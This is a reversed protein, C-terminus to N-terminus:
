CLYENFLCGVCDNSQIVKDIFKQFSKVGKVDINYYKMFLTHQYLYLLFVVMLYKRDNKKYKSMVYKRYKMDRRKFCNFEWLFFTLDHRNKHCEIIYDTILFINFLNKGYYFKFAKYIFFLVFIRDEKYNGVNECFLNIVHMVILIKYSYKNSCLGGLTLLEPIFFVYKYLKMLEAYFFFKKQCNLLKDLEWRLKIFDINNFIKSDFEASFRECMEHNFEVNKDIKCMMNRLQIIFKRDYSPEFISIYTKHDLKYDNFIDHVDEIIKLRRLHSSNYSFSINESIYKEIYLNFTDVFNKFNESNMIPKFITRPFISNRQTDKFVKSYREILKTCEKIHNRSYDKKLGGMLKEDCNEANPYLIKQYKSQINKSNNESINDYVQLKVNKKFGLLEDLSDNNLTVLSCKNLEDKSPESFDIRDLFNLFGKSDEARNEYSYRPQEFQSYNSFNINGFAHQKENNQIQIIDNCVRNRKEIMDTNESKKRKSGINTASILRLIKLLNFNM